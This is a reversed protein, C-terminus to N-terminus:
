GVLFRPFPQWQHRDGPRHTQTCTQTHTRTCTHTHARTHMHTHRHTHTHMHTRTHRHTHTHTHTHTHIYTHIYSAIPISRSSTYIHPHPTLACSSPCSSHCSCLVNADVLCCWLVASCWLVAGVYASSHQRIGVYASTHDCSIRMLYVPACCRVAGYASTLLM